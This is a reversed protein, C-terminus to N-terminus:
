YNREQELREEEEIKKMLEDHILQQKTKKPQQTERKHEWNRVAAKWDKMKSKGIMWGKSEYFDIFSEPDIDNNRELCYDRVEELTPKIFTEKSIGLKKGFNIKFHQNCYNKGDVKYSSRRECVSNNTTLCECFEYDEWNYIINMNNINNNNTNLINNNNTNTEQSVVQPSIPTTTEPTRSYYYKVKVYWGTVQKSENLRKEVEILEMDKLQKKVRKLKDTGWHLCKKTYEDAAKIPNHNQWKATKYYFLYLVLGDKNEEQFLREITTKNVILLEDSIDNLKLENNM